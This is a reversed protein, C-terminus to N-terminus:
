SAKAKVRANKVPYNGITGKQSYMYCKFDYRCGRRHTRLRRSLSHAEKLPFTQQPRCPSSSCLLPHPHPQRPLLSASSSSFPHRHFSSSTILSLSSSNSVLSSLNHDAFHQLVPEKPCRFATSIICHPLLLYSLSALTLRHFGPRCNTM